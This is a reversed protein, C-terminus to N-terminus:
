TEPRLDDLRETLLRLGRTLRWKVTMPSVGLIRAAETQTLDQLKVREFAEREEDPL